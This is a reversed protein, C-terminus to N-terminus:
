LSVILSRYYLPEIIFIPDKIILIPNTPAWEVIYDYYPFGLITNTIM